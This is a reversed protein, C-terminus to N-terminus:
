FVRWMEGKPPPTSPDERTIALRDIEVFGPGGTWGTVPDFRLGTISQGSWGPVTSMDIVYERVATDRTSVPITISRQQAFTPQTTTTWFIQASTFNTTNRMRLLLYRFENGPRATFGETLFIPDPGTVRFQLSGGAVTADAVDRDITWGLFDGPVDFPYDVDGLPLAGVRAPVLEANDLTLAVGAANVPDLRVANITGSWRPDATLNIEYERMIGDASVPFPYSFFSGDARFVYIEGVLAAGGAAAAMRLRLARWDAAEIVAANTHGSNLFMYPDGGTTTARWRGGAVTAPGLDNLAIVDAERSFDWARLFVSM